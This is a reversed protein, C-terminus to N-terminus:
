PLKVGAKILSIHLELQEVYAKLEAIEEEAAMIEVGHKQRIAETDECRKMHRRHWENASDLYQQALKAKAEIEKDKQEACAKWCEWYVARYRQNPAENVWTNFQKMNDM